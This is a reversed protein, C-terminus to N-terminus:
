RGTANAASAADAASASAGARRHRLPLVKSPECPDGAMQHPMTSVGGARNMGDANMQRDMPGAAPMQPTGTTRTSGSVPCGARTASAPAAPAAAVMVSADESDSAAVRTPGSAVGFVISGVLGAVVAFPASPQDMHTGRTAVAGAHRKSPDRCDVHGRLRHAVGSMPGGIAVGPATSWATTPCNNPWVTLALGRRAPRDRRRETL